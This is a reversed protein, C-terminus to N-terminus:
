TTEQADLLRELAVIAHSPGYQDTALLDTRGEPCAVFLLRNPRGTPVTWEIVRYTQDEFIVYNM